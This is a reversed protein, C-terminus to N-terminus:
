RTLTQINKDTHHLPLPVLEHRLCHLAAMEQGGELLELYKERLLLYQMHQLPPPPPLSDCCLYLCMSVPEVQASSPKPLLPSLDEVAHSAQSSCCMVMYPYM